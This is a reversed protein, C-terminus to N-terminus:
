PEGATSDTRWQAAEEPSDGINGSGFHYELRTSLVAIRARLREIEATVDDAWMWDGNEAREMSDGLYAKHVLDYRKLTMQSESM